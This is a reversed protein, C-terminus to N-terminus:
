VDEKVMYLAKNSCNGQSPNKMKKCSTSGAFLPNQKVVMAMIKIFILVLDFSFGCKRYGINFDFTKSDHGAM